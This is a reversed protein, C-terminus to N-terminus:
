WSVKVVYDGEEIFGDEYLVQFIHSISHNGYEGNRIDEAETGFFVTMNPAKFDYSSYNNAEHQAVFELDGGYKSQVFDDFDFSDITFITQKKFISSTKM